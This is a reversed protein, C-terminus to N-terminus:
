HHPSAMAPAASGHDAGARLAEAWTGAPDGYTSLKQRQFNLLATGWDRSHQRGCRLPIRAAQHVDHGALTLLYLNRIAALAPGLSARSGTSASRSARQM